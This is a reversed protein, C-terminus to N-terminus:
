VKVSEDAQLARYFDRIEQFTGAEIAARIERLFELYCHLNHITLLRVGLIEDQNIALAAAQRVKIDTFPEKTVNIPMYYVEAGPITVIALKADATDAGGSILTGLSTKPEQVGLGLYSLSAEALIAQGVFASM